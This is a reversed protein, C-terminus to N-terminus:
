FITRRDKGLKTKKTLSDKSTNELGHLKPLFIM